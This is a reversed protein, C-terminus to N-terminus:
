WGGRPILAVLVPASSGNPLIYHLEKTEGKKIVGLFAAKDAGGLMNENPVLYASEGGWKMAGKFVDGRPNLVVAVDEKATIRIKHLIGFNGKNMVNVNTIGDLGIEWVTGKEGIVFQTVEKKNSKVKYHKELVDFTGRPHQDRKCVNLQAEEIYSSNDEGVAFISWEIAGEFDFDMMGSIADGKHWIKDTSEYIVKTEYPAFLVTRTEQTELYEYLLQQGTHLVDECPGKVVERSINGKVWKGSPNEARVVLKYGVDDTPFNNIHHFILRGKGQVTEQYLLGEDIVVEPSNSMVLTGEVGPTEKLQVEEVKRFDDAEALLFLQGSKGENFNYAYKSEKKQRADVSQNLMVGVFSIM